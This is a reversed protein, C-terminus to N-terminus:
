RNLRDSVSVAALFRLLSNARLILDAVVRQPGLEPLRVKTAHRDFKRGKRHASGSSRLNQVTRLFEIHAHYAHVARIRFLAELLDIGGDRDPRQAEPVLDRIRRKHLSDVLITALGQVQEDFAPQEDSAPVRVSALRHADKEHLPQLIQWGLRQECTEALQRYLTRFQHEPRHSEAFQAAFQRDFFTTSVRTDSPLFNHAQWHKQQEYPLTEGLDGLWACM